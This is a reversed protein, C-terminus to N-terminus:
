RASKSSNTIETGDSHWQQFGNDLVAGDPIGANGEAVFKVKWFGVIGTGSGPRAAVLLFSGTGVQLQEEWSQLQIGGNKVM